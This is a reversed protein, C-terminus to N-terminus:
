TNKKEKGNESVKKKHNEPFIDCWDSHLGGDGAKEKGCTCKLVVIEEKEKQDDLEIPRVVTLPRHNSSPWKGINTKIKM